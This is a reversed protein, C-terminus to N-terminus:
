ADDNTTDIASEAKREIASVEVEIYESAGQALRTPERREDISGGLQSELEKLRDNVADMDLAGTGSGEADRPRDTHVSLQRQVATGKIRDELNKIVQLLVLAKKPDTETVLEYQGDANKIRKTTTIDMNILEEYRESVADLAAKTKDEYHVLPSIIWAMKNPDRIIRYFYEKNCLNQHIRWMRMKKGRQQAETLEEWFARKVEYLKLTPQIKNRLREESMYRIDDPIESIAKELASSYVTVHNEESYEREEDM